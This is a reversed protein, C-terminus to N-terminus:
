IESFKSFIVMFIFRGYYKCFFYIIKKKKPKEKKIWRTVSVMFLYKKNGYSYDNLKKIESIDKLDFLGLPVKGQKYEELHYYYQVRKPTLAFFRKEWTIKGESKKELIGYKITVALKDIGDNKNKDEPDPDIDEYGYNKIEKLKETIEHVLLIQLSQKTFQNQDEDSKEEMDRIISLQGCELQKRLYNKEVKKSPLYYISKKQFTNAIQM